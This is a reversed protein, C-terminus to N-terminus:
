NDVPFNLCNGRTQAKSLVFERAEVKEARVVNAVKSATTQGMVVVGAIVALAPALQTGCCSQPPLM